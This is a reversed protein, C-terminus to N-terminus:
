ESLSGLMKELFATKEKEAQLLREYLENNKQNLEMIEKIPFYNTSPSGEKSILFVDNTNGTKDIHNTYINIMEEPDFKKIMEVSIGLTDACKELLAEEIISQKEIKTVVPQTVGIKEAFDEQKMDRVNRFFRVNRGHHVRAKSNKSIDMM